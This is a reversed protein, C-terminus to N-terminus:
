LRHVYQPRMEAISGDPPDQAPSLNKRFGRKDHLRLGTSETGRM